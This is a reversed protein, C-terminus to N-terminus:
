FSTSPITATVRVRKQTNGLSNRYNQINSSCSLVTAPPMKSLRFELKVISSSPANSPVILGIQDSVDSNFRLIRMHEVTPIASLKAIDEYTICEDSIWLKRIPLRLIRFLWPSIHIHSQHDRHRQREHQLGLEDVELALTNMLSLRWLIDFVLTWADRDIRSWIFFANRVSSALEPHLTITHLFNRYRLVSGNIKIERYLLHLAIRYFRRCTLSINKIKKTNFPNPGKSLTFIQLLLEDSLKLISM